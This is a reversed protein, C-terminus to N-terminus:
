KGTKEALIKIVTGILTFFTSNKILRREVDRTKTSSLNKDTTNDLVSKTWLRNETQGVFTDNKEFDQYGENNSNWM